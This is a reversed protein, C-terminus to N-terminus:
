HKHISKWVKNLVLNFAEFNNNGCFSSYISLTAVQSCVMWKFILGKDVEIFQLVNQFSYTM